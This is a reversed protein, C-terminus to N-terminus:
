SIKKFAKSYVDLTKNVDETTHSYMAFHDNNYFIGNDFVFKLFEIRGNSKYNTDGNWVFASWPGFGKLSVVEDLGCRSIIRKININLLTGINWLHEIVTNSNYFDVVKNTYSIAFADGSFTGSVQLKSICKM